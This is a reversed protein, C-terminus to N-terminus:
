RRIQPTKPHARVDNFIRTIDDVVRSDAGTGSPIRSIATFPDASVIRNIPTITTGNLDFVTWFSGAGGPVAFSQVLVNSIYVDVVAGSQSLGLDTSNGGNGCCSYNQVGYRYRGTFVQSITMTEPGSGSTVDQDLCAFPSSTCSGRAAYYAHFRSVTDSGTPGTLHSDLDGPTSRWTLVIRVVGAATLPSIFVNQNGTTTAGVSIGTKSADAYGTAKALVTYTGASINTFVYQGSENTQVTQIATGTLANLGARLSVTAATTLPRGSTADIITGSISGPSTSAPVLPVAEAVSTGNVRLAIISTTVYGQLSVQVDYLGGALQPTLYRGDSTTQVTVGGTQQGSPTVAITVGGLPNNTVANYVFGSVTGPSNGSTGVEATAFFTTFVTQSVIATITFTGPTSGLTAVTQAFGGADTTSVAPSFSATANTNGTVSWVVPINAVPNGFGDTVRVILPDRLATGVAGKQNSGSGTLRAPAGATGTTTFFVEAGSGTVGSLSARITEIGAASGLTYTNSAIGNAGTTTTALAVAGSGSVRTWEVTAGSVLAGFQDFVKVTLPQPLTTAVVATQGDGSNTAITAAPAPTATVSATVPALTGSAAEFQYAGATPGLTLASSARGNADAIATATTVRAGATIARFAVSAGAVPLNDAAQVEVVLPQALTSGAAGTQGAGSIVVLRAAVPVIDLRTAGTVNLPTTATITVTGRKGTTTVTATANGTRAVTALAADSTTWSVILDSVPLGAADAGTASVNLTNPGVLTPSAPVVAITKVTSGPGTYQLQVIAPSGGGPASSARAVVRQTGSFLVQGEANRLEVDARFTEGAMRLPVSLEIRLTELGLPFAITTDRISGDPATLRVRVNTIDLGFASLATYALSAAPTFVPALSIRPNVQTAESRTPADTCSVAAAASAAVVVLRVFRRM